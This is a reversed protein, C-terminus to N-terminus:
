VPVRPVTSVLGNRRLMFQQKYEGRKIDHTVEEVYYLGDFAPGAGRVGVLKRTKLPQGYRVVNLTGTGVVADGAQAARAAALLAARVASYKATTTIRPFEQPISPILGLPPNLPSINPVPIPISIHSQENQIMVIPLVAKHSELRFSLSEVNTHADMNVNLAPQPVGVKVEPGWYGISTGPAPGPDVYFVYGAEKALETLYELDKGKQAPIQKTPLPVEFLIPPVVLPVVGFAAYKALVLAVRAAVPTAPYPLGTFDIFDMLASLDEGVISLTSRTGDGEPAISHQKMVGDMLVQPTGGITVVIIVRIIPISAGGALLFLTHLPSRNDLTFKLEFGSARNTAARVTVSQLADLVAKPVPVPVGPGIMLTVYIGKSVV